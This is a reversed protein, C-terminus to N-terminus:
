YVHSPQYLLPILYTFTAVHSSHHILSNIYSHPSLTSIHLLLMHYDCTLTAMVQLNIGVGGARTSLLFVPPSSESVGASVGASEGAHASPTTSYGRRSAKNARLGDEEEEEEGDSGNEGDDGEDGGDSDVGDDEDEDDKDEGGRGNGRGRSFLSILRERETSSTTGDIRACSVGM